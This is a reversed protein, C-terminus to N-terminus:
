GHDPEMPVLAVWHALGASTTFTDGDCGAITVPLADHPRLLCVSKATELARLHADLSPAHQAGSVWVLWKAYTLVRERDREDRPLAPRECTFPVWADGELVLVYQGHRTILVDAGRLENAPPLEIMAAVQAVSISECSPVLVTKRGGRLLIVAIM